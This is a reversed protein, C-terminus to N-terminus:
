EASRWDEVTFVFEGPVSLDHTTEGVRIEDVRWHVVGGNLLFDWTATTQDFQYKVGGSVTAGRFVASVGDVTLTLEGGAVEVSWNRGTTNQQAMRSGDMLTGVTVVTGPSAATRTGACATFLLPFLGVFLLLLTKPM